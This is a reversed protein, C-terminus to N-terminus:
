PAIGLDALFGYRRIQQNLKGAEHGNYPWVEISHPGAYHNFAAFVTSPPCIEDMLGVSFLAPASARVAFNVGDFCALTEFVADVADRKVSLYHRIERYPYEDTIETARRWHCLFPVDILAARPVTSLGAVALALGGGQSQGAVVLCGADVSPHTAAADLALVADTILRRYYYSERRELGRTTFGPTQGTSPPSGTEELDPTDGSSWTGGQGRTDMVLHAYGASAWSLWEHPLSRGGGYGVYEVVTPVPGTTGAPLNLWGRIPQGGFGSFTVDFTEITRLPTEIREFRPPGAAARSAALTDAWFRDFDEPEQRPPLYARLEDLPLDFASM